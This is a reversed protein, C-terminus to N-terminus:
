REDRVEQRRRVPLEVELSGSEFRLTLLVTEGAQLPRQLDILMLHVGGPGLELTEGPEIAVRDRRRMRMMGGDEIMEHLQAALALETDAGSLAVAENSQNHLQLYAVATDTGPITEAIWAERVVVEPMGVRAANDADSSDDPSDRAPSCCGLTLTVLLVTGLRRDPSVM